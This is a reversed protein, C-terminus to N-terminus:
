IRLKILIANKPIPVLYEDATQLSTGAPYIGSNQIGSPLFIRLWGGRLPSSSSGGTRNITATDEALFDTRQSITTLLGIATLNDKCEFYSVTEAASFTFACIVALALYLTFILCIKQKIVAGDTM